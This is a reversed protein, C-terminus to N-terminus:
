LEKIIPAEVLKKFKGIFSNAKLDVLVQAQAEKFLLFEKTEVMNISENVLRDAESIRQIM